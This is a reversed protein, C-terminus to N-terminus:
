LLGFRGESPNSTFVTLSMQGRFKEPPHQNEIIIIQSDRSHHQILYEYFKEKLDTGQLQTDDEGEPEFYALLPSDMIVFGPHPLKREKCYELLAVTVAAHTIARLGKGRAGRPKGDIVFDSTQKDFHVRCEGPFDWSQLIHEVRKSLAHAVSDPIGTEISIETTEEDEGLLTLRKAELRQVREFMDLASQVQARKETLETFGNRAGYVTPSTSMRILGDVEEYEKKRGELMVTLMADENQLDSIALQLEEMLQHIKEIEATAASVITEVDGECGAGAHSADPQTGCLPCPEKNLFGFLSGSEQIANLRNKDIEYHSRLLDFRAQLEKIESKRKTAMMCDEYISSRLALKDNLEGEILELKTRHGEISSHLKKLQSELEPKDAELEEIESSLDSILEDILLVQRTNDPSNDGVSVVSSDDVGTLLLKLTALESTKQTFQGTLFPSGSSQIEGEQVIALRAVARFGLSSTVGRSKSKLIRKDALGIKEVLLGSLNDTRGHAHQQKLPEVKQGDPSDPQFHGGDLSRSLQLRDSESFKLSIRAAAYPVREPIQRLTKGGLMYDLTEALFSKGTDSAGCIVNLGETFKISAEQTASVFTLQEIQMKGELRKRLLNLNM